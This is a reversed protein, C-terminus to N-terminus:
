SAARVSRDLMQGQKRAVYFRLLDLALTRQEENLFEWLIYFDEYEPNLGLRLWFYKGFKKRGQDFRVFRAARNAKWHFIERMKALLRPSPLVESRSLKRVHEYSCGALRALATASMGQRAMGDLMLESFFGIREM